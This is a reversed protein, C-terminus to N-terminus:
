KPSLIRVRGRSGDVEIWDGTRIMRTARGVNTVAPLGYERAVISGHSLIGGQDMVVAAAGIFYPAWAPDTFPVVLIEGPLVQAHDDERLIVRAPGTVVGPFVAIGQLTHDSANPAPAVPATPDFRGAVVPPPTLKVNKEHEARRQSIAAHVDFDARDTAVPELEGLELFFIDEAKPLVGERTLHGGLALLIRRLITLHRVAQNKWEERNVALKQARRLSRLFIWRKAPNRLRRLCEATLRERERALRGQNEPPNIQGTTQLYGRVLGLIYDPQESWRPNSLELEGRCHHGHEVMFQGWATLFNRGQEVAELRPWVQAWTVTSALITEIQPDAHAQAALRWLSIAAETEPVGGLGSFLRYGLTLEPDNLWDRCAKQFVLLVAAQTGLYLLDWERFGQDILARFRQLLELKTMRKFDEQGWTDNEAKLRATWADGKGPSHAIVDRIVRPWSLVYKSWRFGLDPLDEDPIKLLDQRALAVQAGGLAEALRSVRLWARPFPKMTAVGTNVNLYVRGAVLGAIPARCIDVGALRFISAAIQNIFLQIMTWTAPTMVDPAVEGANMNSWVQRDEWSRSRTAVTVARAQLVFIRGGATAWEIDQPRGFLREVERALKGLGQVLSEDLCSHQGPKQHEIVRLTPKELVVHEPNVRGSVVRDGLGETGEIVIRGSDGTVPDVTFVVGAAEAPIMEQVLVAM